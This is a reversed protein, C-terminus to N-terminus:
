NKKISASIGGTPTRTITTELNPDTTIAKLFDPMRTDFYNAEHSTIAGGPAVHPYVLDLFKKHQPTGPDMFVFDFTGELTPVEKFADNNRCEIVADLGAKKFAVTAAKAREANIEFTILKGGNKKFALGMWIASGGQGTGIELGRKYGRALILDYLIRGDQPSCGRLNELVARAAGADIGKLWQDLAEQTTQQLSERCAPNDAHKTFVEGITGVAPHGLVALVGVALILVSMM